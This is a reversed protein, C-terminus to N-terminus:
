DLPKGPRASRIQARIDGCFRAGRAYLEDVVSQDPFDAWSKLESFREPRSVILVDLTAWQEFQVRRANDFSSDPHGGLYAARRHAVRLQDTGDPYKFQFEGYDTPITTVIEKGSLIADLIDIKDEAEARKERIQTAPSAPAESAGAPNEEVSKKDRIFFEKLGM